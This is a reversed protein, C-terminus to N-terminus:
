SDFVLIKEALIKKAGMKRLEETNTGCTRGFGQCPQPQTGMSSEAGGDVGARTSPHLWPCDTDIYSWFSRHCTSAHKATLACVTPERNKQMGM